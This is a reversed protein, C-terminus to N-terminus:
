FLSFRKSAITDFRFLFLLFGFTIAADAINFSPWSYISIFDIVAGHLFRDLLNGLAGGLIFGFALDTWVSKNTGRRFFVLLFFIIAISLAAAFVGRVPLSFAVGTNYSLQLGIDDSIFWMPLTLLGLVLQKTLQDLLLIM